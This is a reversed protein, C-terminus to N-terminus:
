AKQSMRTSWCCCPLRFFTAWRGGAKRVEVSERSERGLDTFRLGQVSSNFFIFHFVHLTVHPLTRDIRARARERKAEGCPRSRVQRAPDRATNDLSSASRSRDSLRAATRRTVSCCSLCLSQGGGTSKEKPASQSTAPHHPHPLAWAQLHRRCRRPRAPAPTRRHHRNHTRPPFRTRPRLSVPACAEM